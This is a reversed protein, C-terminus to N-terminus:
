ATIQATERQRAWHRGMWCGLIAGATGGGAYDLPLPRALAAFTGQLNGIQMGYPDFWALAYGAVAVVMPPAWCWTRRTMPLFTEATASGAFAAIGVAALAQQKDEGRALLLVGIATVLTALALNSLDGVAPAEVGPPLLSERDKLRGGRYLRDLVYACIGVMAGLLLTEAALVLFLEPGSDHALGWFIAYQSSGGRLSLAALGIAAAFLGADYRIMGALATGVAVAAALVIGVVLIAVVASPQQLLSAEYGPHVPLRVLVGAWWFACFCAVAASMLLMRARQYPTLFTM